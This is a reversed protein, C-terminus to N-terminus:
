GSSSPPTFHRDSSRAPKSQRAKSFARSTRAVDAVPDHHYPRGLRSLSLTLFMLMTPQHRSRCIALSIIIIKSWTQWTVIHQLKIVSSLRQSLATCGLPCFSLVLTCVIHVYWRGVNFVADCASRLLLRRSAPKRKPMVSLFNCDGSRWFRTMCWLGHQIPRLRYLVQLNSYQRKATENQWGTLAGDRREPSRTQRPRGTRKM